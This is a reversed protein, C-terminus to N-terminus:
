SRTRERAPHTAGAPAWRYAPLPPAAIRHPRRPVTDPSTSPRSTSWSGAVSCSSRSSSRSCSRGGAAFISRLVPWRFLRRLPILEYEYMSLFENFRDLLPMDAKTARYIVRKSIGAHKFCKSLLAGSRARLAPLHMQMTCAHAEEAGVERISKAYVDLMFRSDQRDSRVIFAIAKGASAARAMWSLADFFPEFFQEM